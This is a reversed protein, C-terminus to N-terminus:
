QASRIVDRIKADRDADRRDAAEIARTATAMFECRLSEQADSPFKSKCAEAITQSAIRGHASETSLLM